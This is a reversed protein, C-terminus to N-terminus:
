QRSGLRFSKLTIYNAAIAFVFLSREIRALGTIRSKVQVAAFGDKLDVPGITQIAFFLDKGLQGSSIGRRNLGIKKGVHSKRQQFL